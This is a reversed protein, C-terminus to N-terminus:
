GDRGGLYVIAGQRGGPVGDRRHSFFRERGEITCLRAQEVDGVGAARLAIEACLALDVTGQRVVGVGFRELLPDAVDANVRYERPGACPGVAAVLDGGGLARVTAGVVGAVLGRWGAHCVAVGTGDCRAVIVPVCDAALAVIGRRATTTVLGDGHPPTVLADDFAREPVTSVVHVVAGHRQQCGSTRQPEIGVAACLRRRNECVDAPDDGAALGLNLSAFAGDSVGGGRSTFAAVVGPLAHWRLLPVGLAEEWVLM